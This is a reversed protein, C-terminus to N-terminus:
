VVAAAKEWKDFIAMVYRMGQTKRAKREKRKARKKVKKSRGVTDIPRYVPNEERYRDHSIIYEIHEEITEYCKHQFHYGKIMSPENSSSTNKHFLMISHSKLNEVIKWSGSFSLIDISGEESNFSYSIGNVQCLRNLAKQESKLMKGLRSCYKCYKYGSAYAHQINKFTKKNKGPILKVYRCDETHAIKNSSKGCVYCM